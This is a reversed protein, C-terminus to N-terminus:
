CVAEYLSPASVPLANMKGKESYVPTHRHSALSNIVGQMSEITRTLLMHNQRVRQQVRVLLENNENVLAQVLLQYNHPLVAILQSFSSDESIRVERCLERMAEIRRARADAIAGSQAQVRPVM